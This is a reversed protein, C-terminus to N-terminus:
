YEVKQGKFGFIFPIDIPDIKFITHSGRIMRNMDIHYMKVTMEEKCITIARYFPLHQQDNDNDYDEVKECMTKFKNYISKVVYNDRRRFYNTALEGNLTTVFFNLVFRYPNDQNIIDEDDKIKDYIESAEVTKKKPKAENRPHLIATVEKGTRSELEEKLYDLATQDIESSESKVKKTKTDMDVFSTIEHNKSIVSTAKNIEDVKKKSVKKPTAKTTKKKPTEKKTVPIFFVSRGETVKSLLEAAVLKNILTDISKKAKLKTSIEKKSIKDTVIDLVSQLSIGEKNKYKLDLTSM